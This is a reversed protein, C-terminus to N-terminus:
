RVAIASSAAAESDEYIEGMAPTGAIAQNSIIIGLIGSIAFFGLKCVKLRCIGCPVSLWTKWCSSILPDSRDDASTPQAPM